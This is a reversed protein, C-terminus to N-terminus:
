VTDGLDSQQVHAASALELGASAKDLARLLHSPPM